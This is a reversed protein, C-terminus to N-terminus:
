CRDLKSIQKAPRGASALAQTEEFSTRPPMSPKRCFRPRFASTCLYCQVCSHSGPSPPLSERRDFPPTRFEPSGFFPPVQKEAFSQWILVEQSM